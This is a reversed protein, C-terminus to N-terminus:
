CRGKRLKQKGTTNTTAVHRAHGAEVAAFFVYSTILDDNYDVDGVHVLFQAMLLKQGGVGGLFFQM